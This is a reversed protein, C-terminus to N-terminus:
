LPTHKKKELLLRCVLNTLSQLESTHKKRDQNASSSLGDNVTLASGVLCHIFAAGPFNWCTPPGSNRLRNAFHNLANASPPLSRCIPLADHLSLPLLQTTASHNPLLTLTATSP